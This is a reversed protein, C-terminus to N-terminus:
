QLLALPRFGHDFVFFCSVCIRVLHAERGIGGVQLSVISCICLLCPGLVGPNWPIRRDLVGPICPGLIGPDLVGWTLLKIVARVGRVSGM